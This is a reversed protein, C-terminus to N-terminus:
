DEKNDEPLMVDIVAGTTFEVIENLIKYYEASEFYENIKDRFIKDIQINSVNTAIGMILPYVSSRDMFGKFGSSVYLSNLVKLSPIQYLTDNLANIKADAIEDPSFTFSNEYSEDDKLIDTPLPKNNAFNNYIDVMCRDIIGQYEDSDKYGKIKEEIIRDSIEVAVNQISKCINESRMFYMKPPYDLSKLRKLTNFVSTYGTDKLEEMLMSELKLIDKEDLLSISESM